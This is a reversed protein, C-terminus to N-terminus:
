WYVHGMGVRMRTRIPQSANALLPGSSEQVNAQKRVPDTQSFDSVTLWFWIPEPSIKCLKIRSTQPLVSSLRFTSFQYRAPQTRGSDPGSSEQVGAQKWVLHTQGFGSWVMWIPDPDTKRLIIWAKNPFVSSFRSSAPRLPWLQGYGFRRKRIPDPMNIPDRKRKSDARICPKRIM